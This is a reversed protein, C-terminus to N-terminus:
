SPIDRLNLSIVGELGVSFFVFGSLFSNNGLYLSRQCTKSSPPLLCNSSFAGPLARLFLLVQCTDKRFHKAVGKVFSAVSFDQHPLEKRGAVNKSVAHNWCTPFTMENDNLVLPAGFLPNPKCNTEVNEM